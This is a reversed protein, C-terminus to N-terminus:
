GKSKGASLPGKWLFLIGGLGFLVAGFISLMLETHDLKGSRKMIVPAGICNALFMGFVISAWRVSNDALFVVVGIPSIYALAIVIPYGTHSLVCSVISLTLGGTFGIASVVGILTNNVGRAENFNLSKCEYDMTWYRRGM